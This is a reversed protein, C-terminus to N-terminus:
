VLNLWHEKTQALAPAFASYSLTSKCILGIGLYETMFATQWANSDLETNVVVVRDSTGGEACQRRYAYEEVQGIASRLRTQLSRRTVTKVEFIASKGSPWVAFLDISDPDSEVKAGQEIFAEALEKIIRDHLLTKAHRKQAGKRINAILTELDGNFQFPTDRGLHALDLPKLNLGALDPPIAEDEDVGAVYNEKVYESAKNLDLRFAKQANYPLHGFWGFWKLRAPINFDTPVWFTAPDEQLACYDDVEQIHAMSYASLSVQDSAVDDGFYDSKKLFKFWDQLNRTCHDHVSRLNSPSTRNNIIESYARHWESNTRCPILFAQCEQLSLSSNLSAKFLELLVRLVLAGPKLLIQRDAQLETLTDPPSISALRLAAKLRDSFSSKYGNPYQYRLAQIGMLESFGIEGALFMHGLETITLVRCIKTSFILGLEPLVQQYDRWPEPIGDRVNSTLVGVNILLKNLETKCERTLFQGEFSAACMLLDYL